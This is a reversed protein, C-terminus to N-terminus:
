KKKQIEALADDATRNIYLESLDVTDNGAAIAQYVKEALTALIRLAIEITVLTKEDM